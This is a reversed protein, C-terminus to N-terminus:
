RGDVRFVLPFEVLQRVPQRGVRAPRFRMRPLASRVAEAFAPHTSELVVISSMEVRGNTGVVFRVRASGELRQNRLLDPYRPLPSSPLLAAAHDVEGAGLAGNFPTGTANPDGTGTEGNPTGTTVPFATQMPETAPAPITSPVETLTPMPTPAPVPTPEVKSQEKVPPAPRAPAPEVRPETYPALPVVRTPLLDEIVDTKTTATIAMTILLGHLVVSVAAGQASQERAPRSGVLQAFM